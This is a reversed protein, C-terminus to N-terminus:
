KAKAAEKEAKDLEDAYGKVTPSWNEGVKKLEPSQASKSATELYRSLKKAEKGAEDLFQKDFKDAEAKGIKEAHSKDAGKLETALVENNTKAVEGLEGWIKNLDELMKEGTKKVTDAKAGRKSKDCLNILYFASDATNKLLTKDAQALPKAKAGTGGGTTTTSTGPAGPTTPTAPAQAFGISISALVALTSLVSTKM